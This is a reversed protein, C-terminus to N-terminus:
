GYLRSDQPAQFVCIIRTMLEPTTGICQLRGFHRAATNQATSATETKMITGKLAVLQKAKPLRRRGKSYFSVAPSRHTKKRDDLM